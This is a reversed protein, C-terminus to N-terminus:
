WALLMLGITVGPGITVLLGREGPGPRRQRITEHLVYFISPTGVNGREALVERSVAIAADSLELAEQVCDLIRRGGPHCIWHDIAYRTLGLPRLFDDVAAGLHAAAVDPLERALHLHSDHDSLAMRVADLTGPVQHVTSAVIRPGACAPDYELTAAACGDGFIASGVTKARPDEETARVLLGSMSEAAVVLGRRGPTQPTAAGLLRLLPVASACGVGTVHYKDTRPDV